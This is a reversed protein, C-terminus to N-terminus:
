EKPRLVDIIKASIWYIDNGRKFFIYKGDPSFAPMVYSTNLDIGRSWIGDDQRFSVFTHKDGDFLIFDGAPSIAGHAEYAKTNLEGELKMAESFAGNEYQMGGIDRNGNEDKETTFYFTKFDNTNLNYADVFLRAESWGAGMREAVWTGQATKNKANSSRYFIMHKGDRTMFPRGDRYVGSFPALRPETWVGNVERTFWIAMNSGWASTESRSFYCEKLDPSWTCGQEIFDTSSVFGPAFIEPTMGPPKQGLYPGTLKPFDTQQANISLAASLLLCTILILKKMKIKGKV